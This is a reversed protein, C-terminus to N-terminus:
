IERQSITSTTKNIKEKPQARPRNGSSLCRNMTCSRKKFSNMDSVVDTLSTTLTQMNLNSVLTSVETKGM